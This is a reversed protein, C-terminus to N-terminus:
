SVSRFKAFKDLRALQRRNRYKKIREIIIKKYEVDTESDTLIKKIDM